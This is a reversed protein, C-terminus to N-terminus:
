LLSNKVKYFSNNKNKHPKPRTRVLNKKHEFEKRLIKKRRLIVNEPVKNPLKSAKTGPRDEYTFMAIDHFDIERILNLSKGFDEDTEGPFGVLIHTELVIEPISNQLNLICRKVEEIEYHRNM